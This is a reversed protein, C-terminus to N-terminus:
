HYPSWRSRCEKGVRREESRNGLSDFKNLGYSTVFGGDETVHLDVGALDPFLKSFVTVGIATKFSFLVKLPETKKDTATVYGNYPQFPKLGKILFSTDSKVVPSAAKDDLYVQYHVTDHEPDVSRTWTILAYDKGTKAVKVSFSLPPQNPKDEPPEPEPDKTCGGAIFMFVMFALSFTVKAIIVQRIM